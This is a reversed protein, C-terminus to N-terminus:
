FPNIDRVYVNEFLTIFIIFIIRHKIQFLDTAAQLEFLRGLFLIVCLVNKNKLYIKMMELRLWALVSM